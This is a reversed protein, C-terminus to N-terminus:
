GTAMGAASSGAGIGGPQKVRIESCPVISSRTMQYPSGGGDVLMQVGAPTVRYHAPRCDKEDCCSNGWRDKLQSYIDHAEAPPEFVILLIAACLDLKLSM